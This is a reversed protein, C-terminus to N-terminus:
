WATHGGDIVMNNGTMFSSANSLLFLAAGKFESTEALRGMMNESEWKERLGPVEEFNKLVMPTLIHGPSICNVRIGGTGDKRIPSWEMALNRALQVVAAKSSNYVPSLLGKNAISGSMSAIFCMSGHIKYKFMQRAASTATMMVGTYNIDMMRNVEEKTWEIAPSLHQVGAAAVIGDLRQHKDAIEEITRDLGETDQVDQQRYHLSGGWEDARRAAESWHSDAEPERDFCYVKGGTEALAEALSLGLGRAGGTVIFVRGSLDFDALRRQGINENPSPAIGVAPNERSEPPKPITNTKRGFEALATPTPAAAAPTSSHVNRLQATSTAMRTTKAFTSSARLCQRGLARSCLSM